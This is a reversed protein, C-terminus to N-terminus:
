QLFDDFLPVYLICFSYVSVVTVGGGGYCLLIDWIDHSVEANNHSFHKRILVAIITQKIRDLKLSDM